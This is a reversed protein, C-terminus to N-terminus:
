QKGHNIAELIICIIFCSLQHDATHCSGTVSSMETYKDYYLACCQNFSHERAGDM